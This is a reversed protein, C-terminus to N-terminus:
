GEESYFARGGQVWLVGEAGEDPFELEGEDVELSEPIANWEFRKVLALARMKNPAAVHYTAFFGRNAFPGKGGIRGHIILQGRRIARLGRRGNLYGIARIAGPNARRMVIADDILSEAKETHGARAMWYTLWGLLWGVWSLLRIVISEQYVYYRTESDKDTEDDSSMEIKLRPRLRKSSKACRM